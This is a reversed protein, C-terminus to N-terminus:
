EIVTLVKLYQITNDLSGQDLFEDDEARDVVYGYRDFNITYGHYIICPDDGNHDSPPYWTHIDRLVGDTFPLGEATMRAKLEELKQAPDLQM